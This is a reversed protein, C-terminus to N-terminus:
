NKEDNLRSKYSARSVKTLGSKYSYVSKTEYKKESREDENVIKYNEDEKNKAAKEMDEEEKAAKNWEEAINKKWDENKKIENVRDKIIALAQRVEYDKM